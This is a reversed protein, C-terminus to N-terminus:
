IQRHNFPQLLFSVQGYKSAHLINYIAQGRLGLEKTWQEATIDYLAGGNTRLREADAKAQRPPHGLVILTKELWERIVRYNSYYSPAPPQNPEIPANSEESSNSNLVQLELSEGPM